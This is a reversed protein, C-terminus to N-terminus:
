SSGNLIFRARKAPILYEFKVFVKGVSPGVIGTEIDPKPIVINVINGLKLCEEAVDM